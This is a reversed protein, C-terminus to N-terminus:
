CYVQVFPIVGRVFSCRVTAKVTMLFELGSGGCKMKIMGNAKEIGKVNRPGGRGERPGQGVAGHRAKPLGVGHRGRTRSRARVRKVVARVLSILDWKVPQNDNDRVPANEARLFALLQFFSRLRSAIVAGGRLPFRAEILDGPLPVAVSAKSQHSLLTRTCGRV